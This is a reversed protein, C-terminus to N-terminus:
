QKQLEEEAQRENKMKDQMIQMIDYFYLLLIKYNIGRLVGGEEWPKLDIFAKFDEKAVFSLPTAHRLRYYDDKDYIANVNFDVVKIQGKDTEFEVWSHLYKNKPNVYYVNGTVINVNKNSIIHALYTSNIHCQGQRKSYDVLEPFYKLIKPLKKSIFEVKLDKNDYDTFTIGFKHKKVRKAIRAKKLASPMIFYKQVFNKKSAYYAAALTVYYDKLIDNIDLSQNRKHNFVSSLIDDHLKDIIINDEKAFADEDAHFYEYCKRNYDDSIFDQKRVFDLFEEKKETIYEERM